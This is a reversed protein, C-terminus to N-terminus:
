FWEWSVMLDNDYVSCQFGKKELISLVKLKTIASLHEFSVNSYLEGLSRGCTNPSYLLDKSNLLENLANDICDEFTKFNSKEKLLKLDKRYNSDSYKESKDLREQNSVVGRKANLEQKFKRLNM